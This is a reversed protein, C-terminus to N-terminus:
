IHILSLSQIEQNAADRVAQKLQMYEKQASPATYPVPLGGDTNYYYPINRANRDNMPLRNTQGYMANEDNYPHAYHAQLNLRTANLAAGDAEGLDPAGVRRPPQTSGISAGTGQMAEQPM